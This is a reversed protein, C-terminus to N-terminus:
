NSLWTLLEQHFRESSQIHPAHGLDAFEILVGNPIMEVVQSGLIDYHGLKEQVNPPSWPKGIATTDKAGNILLTRPKLLGFEYIVPQTLVTDVILAQNLIFLAAKSGQYIGVLMNVWVDYAPDWQGVYYTAQQYTRVSQYSTAAESVYTVDISQYPVGLAKYDELGIPNVMALETVNGPFMLAYRAALMGGMSHGIVTVNYISLALLLNNTNLAMQQLSFQYRDPKSSKCFGVQDPIIVRFGVAALRTATDEWTAACFNRGHLLIATKGNGNNEPKVDMFAMELTQRQSIFRYIKVAWPYTFNSGNLDVPIDAPDGVVTGTSQGCITSALGFILGLKLTLKM